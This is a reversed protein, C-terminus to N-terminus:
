DLVALGIGTKGYGNGNYLMYRRGRHDFVHPYEIMESDWGSPSVDIGAREDLRQWSLGDDSEAYGIRYAEGRYSYWMKYTTGDKLVSPRSIAYEESSRFDICVRGDRKWAVGDASEAYRLHYRHRPKGGVNDWGTCSLYWMRWTSGERLVCSSAVFYPDVTSRDIIPGASYRRFGDGPRAETALGLANRFPVSVGVNWGIYYLHKGQPHTTIWSLMAGADDFTGPPGPELVPQSALDVVRAGAEGLEVDVYATYSRSSADRSSFYVRFLDGGLPDAFPVAAHSIMWAPGSAPAFLLGKKTWRM